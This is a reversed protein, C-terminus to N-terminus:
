SGEAEEHDNVKWPYPKPHAKEYEEWEEITRAQQSDIWEAILGMSHARRAEISADYWGVIEGIEYGMKEGAESARSREELIFAGVSEQVEAPLTNLFDNIRKETSTM